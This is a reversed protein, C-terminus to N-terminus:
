LKCSYIDQTRVVAKCGLSDTDKELEYSKWLSYDLEAELWYREPIVMLM